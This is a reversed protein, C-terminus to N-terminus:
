LNSEIEDAVSSLYHLSLGEIGILSLAKYFLSSHVGTFDAALKHLGTLIRHKVALVDAQEAELRTVDYDSTRGCPNACTMCNPVMAAKEQAIRWLLSQENDTDRFADVILATTYDSILDENGETARALGILAGLVRDTM